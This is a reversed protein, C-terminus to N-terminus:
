KKTGVAIYATAKLVVGDGDGQQPNPSEKHLLWSVKEKLRKVEEPRLCHEVFRKLNPSALVFRDWYSEGDDLTLEKEVSVVQVDDLGATALM